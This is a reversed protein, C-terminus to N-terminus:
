SIIEKVDTYDETLSAITLDTNVHGSAYLLYPEGEETYIGLDRSELGAPRIIRVFNFPGTISTSKLVGVSALLYDSSDLHIFM